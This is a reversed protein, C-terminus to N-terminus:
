NQYEKLKLIVEKLVRMSQTYKKPASIKPVTSTMILNVFKATANRQM